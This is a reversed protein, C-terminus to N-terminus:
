HEEEVLADDQVGIVEEVALASSETGERLLAAMANRVDFHGIRMSISVMWKFERETMRTSQMIRLEFGSCGRFPILDAPVDQDTLYANFLMCTFKLGEHAQLVRNTVERLTERRSSLGLALRNGFRHRDARQHM